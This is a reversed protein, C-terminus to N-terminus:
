KNKFDFEGKACIKGNIQIELNHIGSYLKRTTMKKLPHKKIITVTKNKKLEITKIKFVKNSLKGNAKVFHILYDIILKSSEKPNIQIEFELTNGLSIHPTKITLDCILKPNQKFGLYELAYIDGKKILTRLAHKKMWEFEKKNQKKEKGWKKLSDVVLKPHTKSIDNLCNCVSRTVYRHTDFYLLDLITFIRTPNKQFKKFPRSWPLKPRIGESCLRRVHCNKDKAWIKLYAFSEDEFKEIFDHISWECSFRKTMEYQAKMALDFYKKNCGFKAILGSMPVAIFDSPYNDSRDDNIPPLQSKLLIKTMEEFDKPLYKELTNQVLLIRDMLSLSQLKNEIEKNFNIDDFNPYNLKIRQSLKYTNEFNIVERMEFKKEEEM